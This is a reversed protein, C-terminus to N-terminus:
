VPRVWALPLTLEREGGFLNILIDVRKDPRAMKLRVIFDRFGGAVVLLEDGPKAGQWGTRTEDFLGIKIAGRLSEIAEDPVKLPIQRASILLREVGNTEKIPYWATKNIDFGVFLYRPMLPKTKEEKRRAHRIWVKETPLFVEYGQSKLGMEARFECKVQTRVVYWGLGDPYSIPFDAVMATANM